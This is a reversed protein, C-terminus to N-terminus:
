RSRLPFTLRGERALSKYSEMRATAESDHVNKAAIACRASLIVADVAAGAAILILGLLVPGACYGLASILFQAEHYESLFHAARWGPIAVFFTLALGTLLVIAGVIRFLGGPWTEPIAIGRLSRAISRKYEHEDM